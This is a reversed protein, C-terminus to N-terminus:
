AIFNAHTHPVILSQKMFDRDFADHKCSIAGRCVARATVNSSIKAKWRLDAVGKSAPIGAGGVDSGFIPIKM